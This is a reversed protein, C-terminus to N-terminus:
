IWDKRRLFYFAASSIGLCALCIAIFAYPSQAFPLAVNMGYLAGIMSPTMFVITLGTLAKMVKNLNNSVIASFANSISSLIQSYIEAMDTAQRNEIFVDNLLAVDRSSKALPTDSRIKEMISHNGKLATLFYILSKELHVIKILEHSQMSEKLRLEMQGVKKDMALLQEIFTSNIRLLITLALHGTTHPENDHAHNSVLKQAIGDKLCVTLVAEKTVIIALPCTSHTARRMADHMFPTRAVILVCSDNCAVRPRENTDLAAKLYSDPIGYRKKIAEREDLTPAVLDIWLPPQHHTLETYISCLSPAVPIPSPNQLSYIHIM